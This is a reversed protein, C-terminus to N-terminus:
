PNIIEFKESVIETERKSWKCPKGILFPIVHHQQQLRQLERKVPTNSPTTKSTPNPASQRLEEMAIYPTRAHTPGKAGEYYAASVTPHHSM